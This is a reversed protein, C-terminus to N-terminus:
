GSQKIMDIYIPFLNATQIKRILVFHILWNLNVQPNKVLLGKLQDIKQTFNNRGITNTIIKMEEHVETPPM